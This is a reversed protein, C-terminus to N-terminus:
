FLQEAKYVNCLLHAHRIKPLDEQCSIGTINMAEVNALLCGDLDFLGKISCCIFHM